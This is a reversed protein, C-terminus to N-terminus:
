EVQSTLIRNGPCSGSTGPIQTELRPLHAPITSRSEQTLYQFKHISEAGSITLSTSVHLGISESDSAHQVGLPYHTWESRIMCSDDVYPTLLRPDQSVRMM